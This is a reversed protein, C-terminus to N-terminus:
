TLHRYHDELAQLVADVTSEVPGHLSEVILQAEAYGYIHVSTESGPLRFSGAIDGGVVADKAKIELQEIRDGWQPDAKAAPAAAQGKKLAELEARLARLENRLDEFDKATQAQVPMATAAVLAAAVAMLTKKNM